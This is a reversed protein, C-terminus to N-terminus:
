KIYITKNNSYIVMGPKAGSPKKVFKVLCYDVPVNSSNKAKSHKAALEACKYIISEDINLNEANNSNTNLSSSKNNSKANKNDNIKLIVHSGHIDKTHFWLDEKKAYKTTLYDNEKNNRGVLITYGDVTYKIPNFSVEKNKTLQSKKVKSRSDKEVSLKKSLSSNAFAKEFVVNESIEEFIEAIEDITTSSELEYIISELYSIEKITEEKQVTVVELTNKLKNYKKYFRKANISPLYRNDLKITISKNNEYYNQLTVSDLNKNKIKYLNATILEGYLKYQEMNECEKLKKDMNVLRQQYKKLVELILKLTTNRYNKFADNSEKNFYLDDLYFNIPFPEFDKNYIEKLIISDNPKDFLDLITTYIILLSTDNIQTISNKEIITEIISKSIGNFTNCIINSFNNVNIDQLQIKNYSLIKEKFDKVNKLDLFNLKDTTPYVYKTHPLINRHIEDECKIHRISDVIVSNEDLLIINGHKGMLEIILKKSVIDEFEDFGEIALIILRELDTNYINKLKLGVLHKRLLMCFNPAIMPNQKSHTTLCLRYNSADISINLSYNLGDKYLGIIIENKNPQFVKDIRASCLKQLESCVLRTTIGDFKM